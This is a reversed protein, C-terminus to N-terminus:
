FFTIWKAEKTISYFFLISLSLINFRKKLIKWRIVILGAFQNKIFIDDFLKLYSDLNSVLFYLFMGCSYKCHMQIINLSCPYTLLTRMCDPPDRPDYFSASGSPLINATTTKIVATTQSPSGPTSKHVKPKLTTTTM